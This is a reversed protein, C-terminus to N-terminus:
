LPSRNDVKLDAAALQERTDFDAALARPAEVVSAESLLARGGADGTAGAFEAIRSASLAVPPSRVGDHITAVLTRGASPELRELLALLHERTVYPMDALCVIVAECGAEEAAAAVGLRLSSGQGRTPDRNRAIAFGQAVFLGDLEPQDPPCVVIRKFFPMAGATEAIHAALPRGSLPHLLKNGDGYRRSLGAALVVLATRAIATM